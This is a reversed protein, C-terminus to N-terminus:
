DLSPFVPTPFRNVLELAWPKVNGKFFKLQCFRHRQCMFWFVGKGQPPLHLLDTHSRLSEQIQFGDAQVLFDPRERWLPFRLLFSQIFFGARPAVSNWCIPISWLAEDQHMRNNRQTSSQGKKKQLGNWMLVFKKISVYNVHFM